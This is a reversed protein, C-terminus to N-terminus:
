ARARTRGLRPDSGEALVDVMADILSQRLSEADTSARHRRPHPEAQTHSSFREGLRSIQIRDGM